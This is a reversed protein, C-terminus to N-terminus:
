VIVHGSAAATATIAPAIAIPIPNMPGCATIPAIPKPANDTIAPILGPPRTL